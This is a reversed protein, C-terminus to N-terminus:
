AVHNLDRYIPVALLRYFRANWRIDPLHFGNVMVIHSSLYRREETGPLGSIEDAIKRRAEELTEHRVPPILPSSSADIWAAPEVQREGKVGGTRCSSLPSALLGLHPIQRPKQYGEFGRRCLGEHRVPPTLLTRCTSIDVRRIRGARQQYRGAPM